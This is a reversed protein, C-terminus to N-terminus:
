LTLTAGDEFTAVGNQISVHGNIKRLKALKDDPRIPHNTIRYFQENTLKLDGIDEHEGNQEYSVLCYASKLDTDYTFRIRVSHENAASDAAPDDFSPLEHHIEYDIYPDDHQVFHPYTPTNASNM